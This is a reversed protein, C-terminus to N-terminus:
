ISSDRTLWFVTPLSAAGALIVPQMDGIRLKGDIADCVLAYALFPIAGAAALPSWLITTEWIPALALAALKGQRWALYAAIITWGALAHHPTWFFQTVNSSFQIAGPWPDLHPLLLNDPRHEIWRKIWAILDLGAFAIFLFPALRRESARRFSAAFTYLCLALLTANQVGLAIDAATAGFAQGALAPVLYLGIPARLVGGANSAYAVPWAHTSLDTLIADRVTWDDTQWLLHGAGACLTLAIALGGVVLALRRDIPMRWNTARVLPTLSALTSAAVLAGFAPRLFGLAFVLNPAALLIVILTLAAPASATRPLAAAPALSRAITTDTM